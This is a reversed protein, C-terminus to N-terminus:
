LIVPRDPSSRSQCYHIPWVMLIPLLYRPEIHGLYSAYITSTLVYLALATSLPNFRYRGDRWIYFLARLNMLAWTAVVLTMMLSSGFLSKDTRIINWITSIKYVTVGSFNSAVAGLVLHRMEENSFGDNDYISFPASMQEEYSNVVQCLTPEFRCFVDGSYEEIFDPQKAPPLIQPPAMVQDAVQWSLGLGVDSNRDPDRRENLLLWPSMLAFILLSSGVFIKANYKGVTTTRTRRVSMDLRQYSSRYRAAFYGAGTILALLAFFHSLYIYRARFYVAVALALSFFIVRQIRSLSTIAPVYLAISLALLAPADAKPFLPGFAVWVVLMAPVFNSLLHSWGEAKKLLNLTLISLTIVLPLLLIFRVLLFPLHVIESLSITISNLFVNGPSWLNVVWHWGELSGSEYLANGAQLYSGEDAFGWATIADQVPTSYNVNNLFSTSMFRVFALVPLAAVLFHNKNPFSKTM